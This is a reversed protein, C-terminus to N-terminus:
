VAASARRYAGGLRLIVLLWLAAFAMNLLSFERVGFGLLSSGVFVVGGQLLDGFRWFFTDIATKGEYKVAHSTTLFLAHRTTNQLSYDVSNEVIKLLRVVAFGPLFAFVGYGALAIFPMVLLAGAIGVLRYIRSVLFLQLVLSVLNVWGYFDGYIAGINERVSGGGVALETAHRLVIKALLFEGTTNILNLLVVFLALLRLYDDRVVLSLGGLLRRSHAADAPRATSRSSAPVVQAARPCLLMTLALVVAAVLMLNFSGILMFLHGACDAGVWAGLSGGAAIVAFLRRGSEANFLDAAFAWFQSVLLLSFIGLWIFFPIGIALGLRGCGYFILLNSILFLTIWRLLGVGSRHRFLINYLPLSLFLIVAQAAVAYSRVEASGESLVLAERIPKLLYYAFLLLFGQAFLLLVSGVEGLKVETFLSLFRELPNKTRNNNEAGAHM